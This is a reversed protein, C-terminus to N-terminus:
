LGFAKKNIELINAHMESNHTKLFGVLDPYNIEVDVNKLIQRKLALYILDAALNITVADNKQSVRPYVGFHLVFVELDGRHVNLLNGKAIRELSNLYNMLKVMQAESDNEKCKQLFLNNKLKLYVFVFAVSTVLAVFLLLYVLIEM